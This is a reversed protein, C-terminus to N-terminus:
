EAPWVGEEEWGDFEPGLGVRDSYGKRYSADIASEGKRRLYESVLRRLVASRGAKRVDADADLKALLREDFMVQIPKM